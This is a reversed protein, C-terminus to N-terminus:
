VAGGKMGAGGETVTVATALASLLTVPFADTEIFPVGDGTDMEGSVAFRSTPPIASNVAVTFFESGATVHSTSFTGPPFSTTPVTEGM